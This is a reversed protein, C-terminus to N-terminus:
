TPRPNLLRERLARVTARHVEKEKDIKVRLENIDLLLLEKEGELAAIQRNCKSVQKELASLTQEEAQALATWRNVQAVLVRDEHFKRNANQLTSLCSKLSALHEQPATM